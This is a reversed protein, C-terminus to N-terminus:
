YRRPLGSSACQIETIPLAADDLRMAALTGGWVCGSDLCVVREGRYLGLRSWHGFVVRTEALAPGDFTFWPFLGAPQAGPAESCKLELSADSYCFRMRTLANTIYRLRDQGGLDPSWQAPENGKMAAFFARHDPGRLTAELERACARATALDWVPPIGAHAMTWGLEADHCLLNRHRLWHLLAEGDAADHIAQFERNNRRREAPLAADALLTLDHNGLVVDVADGLDALRRLVDLSAGGRNVLDGVLWLRDGVPDFALAELLRALCADCGQIDGVAYLAM